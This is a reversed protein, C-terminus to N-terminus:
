HWTKTTYLCTYFRHRAFRRLRVRSVRLSSGVVWGFPGRDSPSTPIAHSCVRSRSKEGNIPHSYSCKQKEAYEFCGSSITTAIRHRLRVGTVIALMRLIPMAGRLSRMLEKQVLRRSLRYGRWCPALWATVASRALSWEISSKAIACRCDHPVTSLVLASRQRKVKIPLASRRNIELTRLM